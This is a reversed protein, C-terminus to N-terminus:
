ISTKAVPAKNVQSPLAPPQHDRQTSFPRSSQKHGSQSQDGARDGRGEPSLALTLPAIDRNHRSAHAFGMHSISSGIGGLGAEGDVQHDVDCSVGLRRGRCLFLSYAGVM